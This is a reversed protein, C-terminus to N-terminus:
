HDFLDFTSYIWGLQLINIKDIVVNAFYMRTGTVTNHRDYCTVVPLLDLFLQLGYNFYYFTSKQQQSLKFLNPRVMEMSINICVVVFCIVVFLPSLLWFSWCNFFFFLFICVRFCMCDEQKSPPKYNRAGRLQSSGWKKNLLMFHTKCQVM